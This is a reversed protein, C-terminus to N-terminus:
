LHLGVVNGRDFVLGANTNQTGNRKIWATITITNSTFPATVPNFNFAPLSVYSTSGNFYLAKNSVNCPDAAWTAGSITGNLATGTTAINTLVTGAGEDMPYDAYVLPLPVVYDILRLDDIYVDYLPANDPYCNFQLDIRTIKSYDLAAGYPTFMGRQAIVKTWIAPTTTNPYFYSARGNIDYLYIANYRQHLPDSQSGKVQISLSANAFSMDVPTSFTKTIRTGYKPASIFDFKVSGTGEYFTDTSQSIMGAGGGSGDDFYVWGDAVYDDFNAIQTNVAWASLPLLAMLILSMIINRHYQM